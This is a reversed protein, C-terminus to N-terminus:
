IEFEETEGNAKQIEAEIEELIQEKEAMDIM